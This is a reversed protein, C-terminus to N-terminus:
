FKDQFTKTTKVKLDGLVCFVHGVSTSDEQAVPVVPPLSLLAVDDVNSNNNIIKNNSSSISASYSNSATNSASAPPAPPLRRPSLKPLV